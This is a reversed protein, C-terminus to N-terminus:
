FLRRINSDRNHEKRDIMRSNEDLMGDLKEIEKATLVDDRRMRSYRRKIERLNDQVIDAEHRTLEGSKIGRDIRKQQNDIRNDINDDYLRKAPNHKKDKIMESNQDLMRDLRERERENLRGDSKMRTLKDKISDLNDQLMAAEKRTLEGSRIGQNIRKQQNEIRDSIKERHEYGSRDRDMTREEAFVAPAALSLLLIVVFFVSLEKM